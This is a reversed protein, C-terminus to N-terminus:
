FLYNLPNIPSNNKYISFHLHSGTSRGTNGMEGIKQGQGVYQGERVTVRDLHAYLSQFGYNHRIIVYKGYGTPRDGIDAIVGAMTATVV